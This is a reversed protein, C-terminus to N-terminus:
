GGSCVRPGVEPREDGLAEFVGLREAGWVDARLEPDLSLYMARGSRASM